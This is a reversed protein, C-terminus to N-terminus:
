ITASGLTHYYTSCLTYFKKSILALCVISVPDLNHVIQLHLEDPIKSLHDPKPTDTAGITLKFPLLFPQGCVKSM